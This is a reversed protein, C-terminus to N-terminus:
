TWLHREDYEVRHRKLLQIFEDKFSLKRHHKEQEKVYRIVSSLQSESVSFAGYGDQWAFKGPLQKKDNIWKSSSGKVKRMIESLAHVPRLKILMHIHDSMGGIELPVGGEGKLIGGMYRHLEDQIDPIIMPERSKTSFVVHYLLNTLTSGM